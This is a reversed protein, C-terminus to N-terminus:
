SVGLAFSTVLFSFAFHACPPSFSPSSSLDESPVRLRILRFVKLEFLESLSSSVLVDEEVELVPDELEVFAGSAPFQGGLGSSGFDLM